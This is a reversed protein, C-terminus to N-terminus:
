LTLLFTNDSFPELNPAM